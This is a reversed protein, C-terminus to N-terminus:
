SHLVNETWRGKLGKNIGSVAEIMNTKERAAQTKADDKTKKRQEVIARAAARAEERERKKEQM